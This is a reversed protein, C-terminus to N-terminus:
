GGFRGSIGAILLEAAIERGKHNAKRLYRLFQVMYDKMARESDFRDLIWHMDRDDQEPNKILIDRIVDHLLQYDRLNAADMQELAFYARLHHLPLVAHHINLCM